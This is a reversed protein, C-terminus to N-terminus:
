QVKCSKRCAACQQTVKSLAVLAPKPNGSKAVKDVEVAFDRAAQHMALGITRM